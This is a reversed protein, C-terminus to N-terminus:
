APRGRGADRGGRKKFLWASFTGIGIGIVGGVAADSPFHVGCVLRNHAYNDARSTLAVTKEPALDILVTALAWGM